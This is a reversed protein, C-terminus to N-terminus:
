LKTPDCLIQKVGLNGTFPGLNPTKDEKIWSTAVANSTNDSEDSSTESESYKKDRCL